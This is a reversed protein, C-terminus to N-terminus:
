RRIGHEVNASSASVDSPVERYHEPLEGVLMELERRREGREFVADPREEYEDDLELLLDSEPTDLSVECPSKTRSTYNCYV